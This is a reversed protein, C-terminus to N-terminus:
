DSLALGLAEIRSNLSSRAIGLAKAAATRNNNHESLARLLLKKEHDEMANKLLNEDQAMPETVVGSFPLDALEVTDGGALVVLREIMNQLERVNGPWDYDAFAKLAEPSLGKIKKNLEKNFEGLFYETLLPIDDKRERLPTLNLPIVNLRYYLDSRFKGEDIEKQFNINTASIIRVNVPISKEGGLREIAKAELVRLLKSQMAAPMCGIEDLFLTGGDALEFKGTKRELAGTFSGREHGFLESELLNEPIAACNIAVFPKGDRKSKKHIARAVLEKGTGSEGNILITSDTPAVKDITAFLNKMAASRGILDCYTTTEKLTEKLYLNERALAKNNLAREILIKLESTDFPKVIYDYAGLKMAEVATEIEKSATIVIVEIEQDSEKILKLVQIGSMKPMKMDLLVLDVPEKKLLDLGKQGTAASLFNYKKALISRYTELMDAEDDIALITPKQETM